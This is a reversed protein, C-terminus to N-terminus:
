LSPSIRNETSEVSTRGQLKLLLFKYCVFFLLISCAALTIPPFGVAILLANLFPPSAVDDEYM